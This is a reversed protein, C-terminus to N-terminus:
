PEVRGPENKKERSITPTPIHVVEPEEQVVPRTEIENNNWRM